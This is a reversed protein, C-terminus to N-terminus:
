LGPDIEALCEHFNSFNYELMILVQDYDNVTRLSILMINSSDDYVRWVWVNNDADHEGTGYKVSLREGLEQMHLNVELPNNGGQEIVRVANVMCIGTKETGYVVLMNFGTPAPFVEAYPLGLINLGEIPPMKDGANYGFVGTRAAAAEAQDVAAWAREFASHAREYGLKARAAAASLRDFLEASSSASRANNRADMSEWEAAKAAEINGEAIFTIACEAAAEAQAARQEALDAYCEVRAGNSLSDCTADEARTRLFREHHAEALAERQEATAEKDGPYGVLPSQALSDCEAAVARLREAEAQAEAREVANRALRAAARTRQFATEARTSAFDGAGAVAANDSENELEYQAARAAEIDGEAVFAIAREAAAEARAAAAEAFDAAAERKCNDREDIDGISECHAENRQLRELIDEEEDQAAGARLREAEAQAQAATKAQAWVGSPLSVAFALVAFAMMIPKM